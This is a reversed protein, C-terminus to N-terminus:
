GRAVDEDKEAGGADNRQPQIHDVMPESEDTYEFDKGLESTLHAKLMALKLRIRERFRKEDSVDLGAASSFVTDKAIVLLRALALRQAHIKIVRDVFIVAVKWAAAAIFGLAVAFPVRQVVAAFLVDTTPFSTELIKQAGTYIQWSCFAIVGLSIAILLIYITSQKKGESVYDKYEDSIVNRDNLLRDLETKNKSIDRGLGSVTERLESENSRAIEIKSNIEKLSNNASEQKIITNAIVSELMDIENADSERKQEMEDLQESLEQISEELQLKQQDLQEVEKRRKNVFEDINQTISNAAAVSRVANDLQSLTYGLVRFNTARLAFYSKKSRIEIRCVFRNIDFSAASFKTGDQRNFQLVRSELETRSEDAAITVLSLWRSIELPFEGLVDIRSLYCPEDFSVIKADKPISSIKSNVLNFLKNYPATAKVHANVFKLSLGESEKVLQIASDLEASELSELYEM